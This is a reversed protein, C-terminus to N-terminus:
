KSEIGWLKELQKEFEIFQVESLADGCNKHKSIIRMGDLKFEIEYFHVKPCKCM